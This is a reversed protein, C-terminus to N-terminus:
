VPAYDNKSPVGQAKTRYYIEERHVAIERPAAIGIRVQSDRVDLITVKVDDGINISEGLRRTLILMTSRRKRYLSV